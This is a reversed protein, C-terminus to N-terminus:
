SGTNMDPTLMKVLMDEICSHYVKLHKKDQSYLIDYILGRISVLCVKGTTKVAEHNVPVDKFLHDWWKEFIITHENFDNDNKQSFKKNKRNQLKMELLLLPTSKFEIRWFVNLINHIYERLSGNYEFKLKFIELYRSTLFDAAAMILDDKSRFHHQLAGRSVGARKVIESTTTKIYGVSDLCEITAHIIRTRMAQSKEEQVNRATKPM